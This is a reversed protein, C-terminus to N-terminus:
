GWPFRRVTATDSLPMPIMLLRRGASVPLAVVVSTKSAGLQKAVRDIGDSVNLPLKFNMLKSPVRERAKLDKLRLDGRM